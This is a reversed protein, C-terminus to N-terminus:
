SKVSRPLVRTQPASWLHGRRHSIEDALSHLIEATTMQEFKGTMESMVEMVVNATAGARKNSPVSKAVHQGRRQDSVTDVRESFEQVADNFRPRKSLEDMRGLTEEGAMKTSKKDVVVNAWEYMQEKGGKKKEDAAAETM